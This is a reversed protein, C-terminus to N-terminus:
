WQVIVKGTFLIQIKPTLTVSPLLKKRPRKTIFYPAYPFLGAVKDDIM